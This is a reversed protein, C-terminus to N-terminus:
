KTKLQRLIRECDHQTLAIMVPVGFLEWREMPKPNFLRGNFDRSILDRYSMWQIPYFGEHWEGLVLVEDSAPAMPRTAGMEELWSRTSAPPKVEPTTM